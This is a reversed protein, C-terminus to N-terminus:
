SWVTYMWSIQRNVELEEPDKESEKDRTHNKTEEIFDDEEEDEEVSVVNTKLPIVPM